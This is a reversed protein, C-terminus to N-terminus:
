KGTLPLDRHSGCEQDLSLIQRPRIMNRGARRTTEGGALSGGVISARHDPVTALMLLLEAVTAGDPGVRDGGCGLIGSNGYHEQQGSM